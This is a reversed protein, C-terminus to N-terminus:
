VLLNTGYFSTWLETLILNWHGYKSFNTSITKSTSTVVSRIIFIRIRLAVRLCVRLIRVRIDVILAYAHEDNLKMKLTVMAVIVCIGYDRIKHYGHAVFTGRSRKLYM